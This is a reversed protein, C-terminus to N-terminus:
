LQKGDLKRTQDNKEVEKAKEVCEQVRRQM